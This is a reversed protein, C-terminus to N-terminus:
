LNGKALAVVQISTTKKTEQIKINRKFTLSILNCPIKIKNDSTHCTFQVPFNKIRDTLCDITVTSSCDMNSVLFVGFGNQMNSLWPNNIHVSCSDKGYAIKTSFQILPAFNKEITNNNENSWCDDDSNILVLICFL